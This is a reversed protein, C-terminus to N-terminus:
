LTTSAVEGGKGRKMGRKDFHQCHAKDVEVDRAERQEVNTSVTCFRFSPTVESWAHTSQTSLWVRCCCIHRSYTRQNKKLFLVYEQESFFPLIFFSIVHEYIGDM